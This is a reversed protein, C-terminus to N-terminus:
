EGQDKKKPSTLKNLVVVAAMIVGIVIFIGLMGAAMYILNNVFNMPEFM